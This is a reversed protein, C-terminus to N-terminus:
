GGLACGRQTCAARPQKSKVKRHAAWIADMDLEAMADKMTNFAKDSYRPIKQSGGHDHVRFCRPDADTGLHERLAKARPASIGLKDALDAPSRHFIKHVDVRRIAAADVDADEEVYTVPMGGSTFRVEVTLGGGTVDTGVQGLRPFVQERTKGDRIGKEVGNVDSDSVKADDTVHAELALLARIRARAEARARRGPKLLAAINDDERDVLFLFDDPAETSIPLVRTPLHDALKQKFIRLLMDDFLTVSARAHLYLLGESVETFWHQEDDRLADVARLVGAEEDKLKLGSLQQGQRVAQEFSISRGTGKDFVPKGAQALAAKLLMEFAHQLHLLVTTSRGEDYLSNFAAAASRMSAIAKAHLIRADNKVGGMIWSYAGVSWRM